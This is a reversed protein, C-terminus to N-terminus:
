MSPRFAKARHLTYQQYVSAVLRDADAFGDDRVARVQDMYLRTLAVSAQGLVILCNREVDDGSFAELFGNLRPMSALTKGKRWERLTSRQNQLKNGNSIVEEAVPIYASLKAWSIPKDPSGFRCRVGDIFRCFPTSVKSEGSFPLVWYMIGLEGCTAIWDRRSKGQEELYEILGLEVNALLSLVFDIQVSLELRVLSNEGHGEMGVRSLLSYDSLFLDIIEKPLILRSFLDHEIDKQKEDDSKNSGAIEQFALRMEKEQEIRRTLFQVTRALEPASDLYESAGLLFCRWRGFNFITGAVQVDEIVDKPIKQVIPSLYEELEAETSDKAKGALINPIESDSPRVGSLSIHEAKEVWNLIGAFTSPLRFYRWIFLPPPLFFSYFWSADGPMIGAWRGNSAQRDHKAISAEMSKGKVDKM